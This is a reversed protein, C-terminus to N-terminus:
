TVSTAWLSSVTGAVERGTATWSQSGSLAIQQFARPQCGMLCWIESAPVLSHNTIHTVTWSVPRCPFSCNSAPWVRSFHDRWYVEPQMNHPSVAAYQGGTVGPRLTRRGMDATIGSSLLACISLRLGQYVIDRLRSRSLGPGDARGALSRSQRHADIHWAIIGHEFRHVVVM